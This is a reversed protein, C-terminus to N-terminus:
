CKFREDAGGLGCARLLQAFISRTTYQKNLQCACAKSKSTVPGSWGTCCKTKWQNNKPVQKLCSIATKSCESKITATFLTLIVLFFIGMLPILKM